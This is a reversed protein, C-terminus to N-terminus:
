RELSGAMQHFRARYGEARHGLRGAENAILQRSGVAAATQIIGTAAIVEACLAQAEILPAVATTRRMTVTAAIGRRGNITTM